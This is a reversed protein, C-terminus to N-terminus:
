NGIEATLDTKVLLSGRMYIPRYRYSFAPDVSNIERKKM